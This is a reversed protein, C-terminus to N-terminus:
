EREATRLRTVADLGGEGREALHDAATQREACEAAPAVDHLLERWEARHVLRARQRAVRDGHRRTQGPQLEHYLRPQQFADFRGRLSQDLSQSTLRALAPDGERRLRDAAHKTQVEAVNRGLAEGFDHLAIALAEVLEEMRHELAADVKRRRSVLRAEHRRCM